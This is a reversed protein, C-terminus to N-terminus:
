NYYELDTKDSLDELGLYFFDLGGIGRLSDKDDDLISASFSVMLDRVDQVRDTYMSGNTWARYISNLENEDVGNLAGAFILDGAAGGFISDAGSGGVLLSPGQGDTIKDNGDGGTIISGIGIGSSVTITDGSAGGEIRLRTVSNAPFTQAVGNVTATITKGRRTVTVTDPNLTGQINLTGNNLNVSSANTNMILLQGYEVLTPDATYAAHVQAVLGYYGKGLIKSLDIIGSSEEDKTLFNPNTTVNDPLFPAFLDADFQAVETMDNSAADYQWIKALYNQNGPDEQIMIQGTANMGINDFMEGPVGVPSSVVAEITGGLEPKKVDTFRLRFLKTNGGFNDTTVFYFDNPKKPDWAGDEVRRFQTVTAAIADTQFQSETKESVDGMNLLSFKAGNVVGNENAVAAGLADKVQVGHLLGGILGAKQLESGTKQKNGIYFFVESPNTASEASFARNSDDLVAVVTKDQALPSAVINEFAMKGMWPLEFAKGAEPGTVITAFARGSTFEEGNLFIREKSGKKTAANYFATPEALDASCLRALQSASPADFTDTTPNWIQVSKILDDGSVVSLDNKNLIWKSVFSGTAGHDHVVGATPLIEHNILVTFTGDGNDYAGMGDPVGTFAYGGVSDGVSIIPTLNVGAAVPEVYAPVSTLFGAPVDRAELNTVTLQVSRRALATRTKM